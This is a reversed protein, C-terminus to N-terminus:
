SLLELSTRPSEKALIGYASLASEVTCREDDTLEVLPLRVRGSKIVGLYELAYKVPSPSTTFFLAKSLPLTKLHIARATDLDGSFLLDHMKALDNGAIHSTVSVVGVGGLALIPLTVGDEGSYIEFGPKAGLAIMGVQQLDSSAEKVAVINPLDSALRTVTSAQINSVTRGPVNYLM